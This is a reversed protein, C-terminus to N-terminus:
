VIIEEPAGHPFVFVELLGPPFLSEVGPTLKFNYLPCYLCSNYPHKQANEFTPINLSHLSTRGALGKSTAIYKAEEIKAFV